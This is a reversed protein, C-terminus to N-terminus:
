RERGAEHWAAQVPSLLYDAVSRTGLLIEAQLQMGPALRFQGAPGDLLPRDLQVVARYGTATSDPAAEHSATSPAKADAGIRVLEGPLLGYKQFPYSALKLQVSQGPHVFGIDEHSIWVEAELGGQPVLTALITGPQVVTGNTHTAIDKIVGDAPARLALQQHRNRLKRLDSELTLRRQQREEREQLLAQRYDASLRAIRNQWLAIEAEAAELLRQQIKLQQEQELRARRRATLQLKAAQGKAALSELAQEEKRYSPLLAKIAQLRQAAAEREREAKRQEGHAEALAAAHAKRNAECRQSAEAFLADDDGESRLLPRDQLQAEIRRLALHERALEQELAALDTESELAEMRMVVQGQRVSQGEQVLIERVVGARVPQIIQIRGAPVLQGPAVAIVDLRGYLAWGIVFALLTLLIWLLRRGAPNPPDQQLRTLAPHFHQQLDHTAQTPM